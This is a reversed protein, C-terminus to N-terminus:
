GYEAEIMSYWSDGYNDGEHRVKKVKFDGTVFSSQIRILRGPKIEANLLSTAEVGSKAEEGKKSELVNQNVITDKFPTGILGTAPTLLVAEQTISQNPRLIQLKDDQISWEVGQKRTILDLHDRSPGSLSVGQQYIDQGNLGSVDGKGLKMSTLITSLVQDVKVGPSFSAEVKAISYAKEGDGCQITTIIDPGNRETRVKAIDGIFITKLDGEFTEEVAQPRRVWEGYGAELIVVNDKQEVFSRSDKSLNYVQIRASNPQKDLNKEVFFNVRLRRIQLGKGNKPGITLQFARNYLQM